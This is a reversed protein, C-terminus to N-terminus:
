KGFFTKYNNIKQTKKAILMIEKFGSDVSFSSGNNELIAYIEYNKKLLHKYGNGSNTYFTSSPLVSIVLGKDKLLCDILFM